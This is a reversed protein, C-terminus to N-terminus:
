QTVAIMIARRCKLWGYLSPVLFQSAFASWLYGCDYENMSEEVHDRGLADSMRPPGQVECYDSGDGM